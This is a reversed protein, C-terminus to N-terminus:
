QSYLAPASFHFMCECPLCFVRQLSFMHVTIHFANRADFRQDFCTKCSWEFCRGNIAAPAMFACSGCTALFVYPSYFSNRVVFRLAVSCEFWRGNIAEPAMFACSGKPESLRDDHKKGMSSERSLANTFTATAYADDDDDTDVIDASVVALKGFGASGLHRLPQLPSCSNRQSGSGSV